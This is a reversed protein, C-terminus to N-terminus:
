KTAPVVAEEDVDISLGGAGAVVINFVLALIAGQIWGIVFAIVPYLVLWSLVVLASVGLGTFLNLDNQDFISVLSVISGIIGVFVAIIAVWTGVLRGVSGVGVKRITLKKM